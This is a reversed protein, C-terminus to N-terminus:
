MGAASRSVQAGVARQTVSQVLLAAHM